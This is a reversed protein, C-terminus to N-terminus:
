GSGRLWGSGWFEVRAILKLGGEATSRVFSLLIYHRESGQCFVLLFSLLSSDVFGVQRRLGLGWQFTKPKPNLTPAPPNLGGASDSPLGWSEELEEGKHGGGGLWAMLNASIRFNYM